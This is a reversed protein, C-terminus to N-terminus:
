NIGLVRSMQRAEADEPFREQWMALYERAAAQNKLSVALNVIAPFFRREGPWRALGSQLFGAAGDTDGVEFALSALTLATEPTRPDISHAIGRVFQARASLYQLEPDGANIALGHAAADAAAERRGQRLAIVSLYRFGKAYDPKIEVAHTFAQRAEDLRETRYDIEGLFASPVHSGPFDSALAALERKAGDLDGRDRAALAADLRRTLEAEGRSAATHVVVAIAAVVAVTAVAVWTRTRGWALIREGAASSGDHLSVAAIGFLPVISALLEPRRAIFLEVFAADLVVIALAAVPLWRVPGADHFPADTADSRLVLWLLVAIM